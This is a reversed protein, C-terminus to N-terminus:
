KRPYSVKIHFGSPGSSAIFTGGLEIARDRMSALGVGPSWTDVVHGDDDVTLIINAGSTALAVRCHTATSHRVVNTVAESATRYVAVEVAAPLTRKEEADLSVALSSNEVLSALHVHLSGALGLEDLAPPRLGYVLGRLDSIIEASAERAIALHELAKDPNAGLQAQVADLNLRLGTLLPGLGDHLDRRLRRREEQQAEILTRRSVLPGVRRRRPVPDGSWLQYRLVPIVLTSVFIVPEVAGFAPWVVGSVALPFLLLSAAVGAARWQLQKREIGTAKFCRVIIGIGAVIGLLILVPILVLSANAIPTVWTGDIFRQASLPEGLQGIDSTVSDALYNGVLAIPIGYCLARDLWYGLTGTPQGSPFRVNIIGELTTPVWQLVGLCLGWVALQGGRGHFALALSPVGIGVLAIDAAAGLGLIWGFPLDPRRAILVAGVIGFCLLESVTTLPDNLLRGASPGARDMWLTGAAAGVSLALLAAAIKSAHRTTFPTASTEIIQSHRLPVQFAM